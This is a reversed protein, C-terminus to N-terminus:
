HVEAANFTRTTHCRECDTGFQGLHVDDPLHCSVCDTSLKVQDAPRKHCAACGLIAHAGTLPFDTEKQHDFRWLSWGVPSHCRACDRGFDGKHIDDAAHCDVCNRPTGTFQPTLHCQECPVVVHLGSLPFRTRGHDFRVGTRWSSTGHCRACDGGLQGRHLDDVKHCSVCTTKLKRAAVSATHCEFCDLKAHAGQLAWHADRAHDFTTPRWQSSGHCRGCSSGLRGAHPDEGRHCGICSRPLKAKLDGSRHCDQCQLHAHAGLLAFGTEKGHEFRSTRWGGATHCAACNAGRDGHHVDDTAHCAVCEKPTGRYRNAIHCQACALGAHRGRLAFATTGHDFHADWWNATGHCKACDSGLKGGHSDDKAHCGACTNAAARYPKGPAHCDACVLGAHAGRLAFGTLAHDFMAPDLGVIDAARGLHETHCASCKSTAMAPMHGHLGRRLRIDAAVEKHCNLCLGNQRSRDRIDHCASCHEEFKRHATTLKGPMLLMEPNIAEVRRAHLGLALLLLTLLPYWRWNGM